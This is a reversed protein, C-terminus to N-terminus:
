TSRPFTGRDPSPATVGTLNGGWQWESGDRRQVDAADGDMGDALMVTAADIGVRGGVTRPTNLDGHWDDQISGCLIGM